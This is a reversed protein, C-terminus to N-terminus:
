PDASGLDHLPVEVVLFSGVRGDIGITPQVGAVDCVEVAVPMDIHHVPDLLEDLVLAELHRRGFELTQEQRVRRDGIGRDYANRVVFRALQGLREQHGLRAHVGRGLFDLFEDSALDGGVLLDAEDLEDVHDRLRCRALDEAPLESVAALSRRTAASDGERAPGGGGSPTRM